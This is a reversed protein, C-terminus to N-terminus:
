NPHVDRATGQAPLKWCTEDNAFEDPTHMSLLFEMEKIRNKAAIHQDDQLNTRGTVM